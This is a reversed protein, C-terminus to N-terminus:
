GKKMMKEEGKRGRSEPSPFDKNQAMVIRNNENLNFMGNKDAFNAFLFPM